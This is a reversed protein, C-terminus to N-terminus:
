GFPWSPSIQRHDVQCLMANIIKTLNKLRTRFRDRREIGAPNTTEDPHAKRKHQRGRKLDRPREFNADPPTRVHSALICCLTHLTGALQKGLRDCGSM